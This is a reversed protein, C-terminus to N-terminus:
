NISLNNSKNFSQFYLLHCAYWDGVIRLEAPKNTFKTNLKSVHCVRTNIIIFYFIKLKLMFTSLFFRNMIVTDHTVEADIEIKGKAM